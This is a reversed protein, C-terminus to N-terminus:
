ADAALKALAVAGEKTRAGAVWRDKHCFTADPVGTVEQLEADRKGAWSEPFLKRSEFSNEEVTVAKAKWASLQRAPKVVYLPEPYKTLVETAPYAEDLVIIRKDEADRYAKEVAAVASLSGSARVIERRLITEAFDVAHKFQMDFMEESEQWSPVFSYFAEVLPYVPVDGVDPDIGADDADISRVLTKEIKEAAERSGAVREGYEKWVLGFSSLPMGEASKGAGGRQHHDFRGRAPDYEEGVDVVFDGTGFLQPDRTRILEYEGNLLISLTAVAFIEDPQFHGSHTIIRKM